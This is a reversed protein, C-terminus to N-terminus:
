PNFTLSSTGKAQVFAVIKGPQHVLDEVIIESLDGSVQLPKQPSKLFSQLTLQLNDIEPQISYRVNEELNKLFKKKNFTSASKLALSSTKLNYSMDNMRVEKAKPNYVLDGSLQLTGSQRPKNKNFVQFDVILQTQGDEFFVDKIEKIEFTRGKKLEYTQNALNENLIRVFENEDILVPIQLSFVGGNITKRSLIPLTTTAVQPKSGVHTQVNAQLTISTNIENNEVLFDGLSLQDASLTLWSPIPANELSLPQTLSKWGAAALNKVSFREVFLEDLYGRIAGNESYIQDEIVQGVGISFGLVNITARELWTIKYQPKQAPNWLSDLDLSNTVDLVAKLNLPHTSKIEKGFLKTKLGVKGSVSLPIKADITNNTFKLDIEGIRSVKLDGTINKDIPINRDSFLETPVQQNVWATFADIPLTIPLQIQSYSSQIRQEIDKSRSSTPLKANKCSALLLLFSCIFLVGRHKIALM